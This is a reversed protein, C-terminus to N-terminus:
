GHKALFHAAKHTKIIGFLGLYKFFDSNQCIKPMNQAYRIGKFM